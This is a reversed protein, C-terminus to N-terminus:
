TPLEPEEVSRRMGSKIVYLYEWCQEKWRGSLGEQAKKHPRYYGIVNEIRLYQQKNEPNKLIKSSFDRLKGFAAWGLQM